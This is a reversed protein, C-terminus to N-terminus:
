RKQLQRQLSNCVKVMERALAQRATEECLRGHSLSFMLHADYWSSGHKGIHVRLSDTVRRWRNGVDVGMLNLRWLLSSADLLGLRNDPTVSKVLITDYENMVAETDGLEPSLSLSIHLIVITIGIAFLLQFDEGVINYHSKMCM